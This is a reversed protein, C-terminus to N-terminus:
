SQSWFSWAYQTRCLPCQAATHVFLKDELERTWYTSLSVLLCSCFILFPAWVSLLFSCLISLSLLVTSSSPWGEAGCWLWEHWLIGSVRAVPYCSPGLEKRWELCCQLIIWSRILCAQSSYVVPLQCHLLGARCLLLQTLAHKLCTLVSPNLVLTGETECEQQLKNGRSSCQWTVKRHVFMELSVLFWTVGLLHGPGSTQDNIVSAVKRHSDPPRCCRDKTGMALDWGDRDEGSKCLTILSLGCRWFWDTM